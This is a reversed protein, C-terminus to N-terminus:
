MSFLNNICAHIHMYIYTDAHVLTYTDAHVLRDDSDAAIYRDLYADHHTHIQVPGQLTQTGAAVRGPGDWQCGDM